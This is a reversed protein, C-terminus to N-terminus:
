LLYRSVICRVIDNLGKVPDDFFEENTHSHCLLDDPHPGMFPIKKSEFILTNKLMYTRINNFYM